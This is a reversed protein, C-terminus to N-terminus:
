ECGKGFSADFLLALLACLGVLGISFGVVATFVHPFDDGKVGSVVMSGGVIVALELGITIWAGRRVHM